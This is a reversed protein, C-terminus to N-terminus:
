AENRVDTQQHLHEAQKLTSAVMEDIMRTPERDIGTVLHDVRQASTADDVAYQALANLYHQELEAHLARTKMVTEDSLGIKPLLAALENLLAQTKQSQSIFANRYKDFQAQGQAGRVLINKWEQVQIKFQVQANRATDISEAIVKETTMIEQNQQLGNANVALSRVGIFLTALLLLAALLGLRQGITFHNLKM